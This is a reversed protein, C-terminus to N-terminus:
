INKIIRAPVGCVVVNPPVDKTVVAGAGIVSNEGITVGPNIIAGSGIWVGDKIIIPQIFHKRKEKKEKYDLGATNIVVYPSIHVYNGIELRGRANLLAGHNIVSNKGLYINVLGRVQIHGNIISNKGFSSFLQRFYIKYIKRVFLRRLLHIKKLIIM